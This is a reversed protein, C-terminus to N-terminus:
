QTGQSPKCQAIKKHDDHRKRSKEEVHRKGDSEGRILKLLKVNGRISLDLAAPAVAAHLVGARGVGSSVPPLGALGAVVAVVQHLYSSFKRQNSM